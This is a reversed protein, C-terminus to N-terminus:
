LSMRSPHIICSVGPYYVLGTYMFFSRLPSGLSSPFIIYLVVYSLHFNNFPSLYYLISISPPSCSFLRKDKKSLPAVSPPPPPPPHHHVVTSQLNSDNSSCLQLEILLSKKRCMHPTLCFGILIYV